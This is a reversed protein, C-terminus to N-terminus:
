DRDNMIQRHRAMVADLSEGNGAWELVADIVDVLETGIAGLARCKTETKCSLCSYYIQLTHVRCESGCESCAVIRFQPLARLEEIIRSIDTM